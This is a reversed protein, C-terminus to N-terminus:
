GPRQWLDSRPTVDHDTGSDTENREILADIQNVAARLDPGQGEDILLRRIKALGDADVGRGDDFVVPIEVGDGADIKGLEERM